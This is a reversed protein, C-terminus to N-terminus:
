IKLGLIIRLERNEFARLGVYNSHPKPSQGDDPIKFILFFLEPFQV